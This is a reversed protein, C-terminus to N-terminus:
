IAEKIADIDSYKFVPGKQCVYQGNIQCHGCKGVGCKMRRELSLYIKDHPLSLKRLELLVFRYMIPPGCVITTTRAPDLKLRPILTTIVGVPGPWIPGQTDANDVTEIFTVDDRDRWSRLDEIFLRDDPTRTGFLINVAGYEDRRDLVYDIASRVPVLGIGGCIFLLDSGKMATDVPFTTGFPGRIGVKQGPEMAHLAATVNGVKRIVMEFTNDESRTPSSTISIPAEGIGPVCVEMFQGPLHTHETPEDFRFRFFKEAATLSGIELLTAPEPLYIDQVKECTEMTSTM